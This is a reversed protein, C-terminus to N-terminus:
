VYDYFRLEVEEESYAFIIRELEYGQKKYHWELIDAAFLGLSLFSMIQIITINLDLMSFCFSGLMFLSAVKWIGQYLLWLAGFIAARFSFGDNIIAIRPLTQHKYILYKKLKM